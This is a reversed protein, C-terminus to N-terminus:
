DYYARRLFFDLTVMLDLTLPKSLVLIFATMRSASVTDPTPVSAVDDRVVAAPGATSAAARCGVSAALCKGLSAMVVVGCGEGAACKGVARPGVRLLWTALTGLVLLLKLARYIDSVYGAGSRKLSKLSFNFYQSFGRHLSCQCLSASYPIFPLFFDESTTGRIVLDGSLTADSLL